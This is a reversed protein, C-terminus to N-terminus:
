GLTEVADEQGLHGGLIWSTGRPHHNVATSMVAVRLALSRWRQARVLCLFPGVETLLVQLAANVTKTAPQPPALTVSNSSTQASFINSSFM